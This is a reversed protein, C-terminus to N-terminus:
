NGAALTRGRDPLINSERAEDADVLSKDFEALVPV